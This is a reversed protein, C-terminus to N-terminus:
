SVARRRPWRVVVIALLVLYGVWWFGGVLLTAFWDHPPTASHCDIDGTQSPTCGAGFGDLWIWAPLAVGFVLFGVLASLAEVLRRM